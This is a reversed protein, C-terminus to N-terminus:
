STAARNRRTAGPSHRSQETSNPSKAALLLRRRQQSPSFTVQTRSAKTARLKNSPTQIVKSPVRAYVLIEDLMRNSGLPGMNVRTEKSGGPITLHSQM